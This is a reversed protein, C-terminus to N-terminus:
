YALGKRLRALENQCIDLQIKLAQNETIKAPTIGHTNIFNIIEDIDHKFWESLNNNSNSKFKTKVM